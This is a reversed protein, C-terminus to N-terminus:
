PQRALECGQGQLLRCPSPNAEGALPGLLGLEVIPKQDCKM